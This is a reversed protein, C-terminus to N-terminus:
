LRWETPQEPQYSCAAGTRVSNALHRGLGAHAAAIKKIAARVRWTVSTRAKEAADGTRRVRNGLGTARQIEELIAEREEALRASRGTDASDEADAADADIDRLRTRYSALAATDVREIGRETLKADALDVCPIEDGPAALLRALDVLGRLDRLQVVEHDFALTWLAGERRFTNAVPWHLPAESAARRSSGALGARRLGEGLHDVDEERRYPNLHLVWRFLEDAGPEAGRSIRLEFDKRFEALYRAAMKRDGLYACMAAKFAPVDVVQGPPAKEAVALAEDYRRLSFLPLAAYGYFWGPCLPDLRLAREGLALAREPDGHYSWCGALQILNRADNPALQEGREMRPIARAFERRYQEVRALILQVTADNPDLAEARVANEYAMQEKDEFLAWAQCSWDNFHSLSIGSYARAYNPDAELAQSFFERAEDDASEAGRQLCEMGRLWCEYAALKTPHRRRSGTLVTQDLSISLANALKAVIEDQIALVDDEDFRGAWLHRGSAAEVLQVSIRVVDGTRRLSGKLLHGVDDPLESSEEILTVALAPFRVMEAALDQVFGRSLIGDAVSASLTELPMLALSIPRSNM